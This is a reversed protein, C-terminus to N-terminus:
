STTSSVSVDLDVLPLRFHSGARLDLTVLSKEADEDHPVSGYQRRCFADVSVLPSGDARDRIFDLFQTVIRGLSGVDSLFGTRETGDPLLDARVQM